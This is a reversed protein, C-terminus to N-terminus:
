GAMRDLDDALELIGDFEFDDALQVIKMKFPAFEGARGLFEEAITALGSVDGMEAAGSLRKAAEKALEPPLSGELEVPPAPDSAGAAPALSRAGRLATELHEHFAALAGILSEPSPPTDKDAHKVLKELQAAAAQLEGAALNGAVGEISHVLHHAQDHDGADLVKRIEDTTQAYGAAFSLLLKRYLGINGQLRRLGEALEFGPLSDPFPQEGEREQNRMKREEHETGPEQVKHEAPRLAVADLESDAAVTESAGAFVPEEPLTARRLSIWRALAAFLQAPDIPKTVHHNMGAGISKEQDGAMAHATMAIIPLDKFRPDSRIKRTATYGDMVPMQVDMLVADYRNAQVAVVAEQDNNANSVDLGAGALIEMAVQQNIENDEVLLVRAGGLDKLAQAVQEKEPVPRLAGPADKGFAQMITDFMVSPSVPKILFGDLGASEAQQMIEGRGYATVLIIVPVRTLRFDRKIRESARIGDIGSMKWDMIVLDYPRSGISKAIEALGEEGSAALTVESSFSEVMEQFIERSTPNDDVVLAKIGKL